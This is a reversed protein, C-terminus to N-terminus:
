ELEIRKVKNNELFNNINDSIIQDRDDSYGKFLVKSIKDHNFYAVQDSLLGEPFNVAAYDFFSIDDNIKIQLGRGVIMLEKIGGRTYVVSGLPLYDIRSM